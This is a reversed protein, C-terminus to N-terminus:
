RYLDVFDNTKDERQRELLIQQFQEARRDWTHQQLTKKRGNDAIKQCEKDNQLLLRIQDPLSKLDELHFVLLDEKTYKGHLYTTDDTVLVAGALMINAMRETFGGKHWSMINLSLKSKRWIDLSEEVTVDPHCVLNPYCALPSNKWSNGFVDVQIGQELIEFLVRIRYYHMVCYIVRRLKRLLCLFEDDELVLNRSRLVEELAQEATYCPNKRMILLFHNAIFRTRKDMQHILLVENWYNGYTGIFTLEYERQMSDDNSCNIGAPPFLIAQHGYYRKIFTVYNGDLTLLYFDDYHHQMHQLMWVPHDFSFNYKPGYIYEHVYHVGDQLKVSFLYTQVGIVAQFYRGMYETIEAYERKACDFYEVKKGYKTLAHGFQEAFINLVNYCISEGKYILIPSSGEAINWYKSKRAVMDELFDVTEKERGESKAETIIAIIVDDLVGAGRLQQSYRGAVYCDTKWGYKLLVDPEDDELLVYEKGPEPKEEAFIVPKEWAVRILLEYKSKAPLYQNIGGAEILLQKDLLIQGACITEDLLIELGSIGDSAQKLVRRM